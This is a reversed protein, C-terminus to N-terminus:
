FPVDDNEEETAKIADSLAKADAKPIQSDLYWQRDDKRVVGLYWTGQELRSFYAQFLVGELPDKQGRVLIKVETLTRQGYKTEVSRRNGCLVAIAKDRLPELEIIDGAAPAPAPAIKPM